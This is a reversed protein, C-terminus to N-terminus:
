KGVQTKKELNEKTIIEKILENDDKPLLSARIKEEIILSIDLNETLFKKVNDRGQGMKQDGYSYWSGAKQILGYKIGADMLSGEKSIGRGYEVDLEAERFPPALKNKVIKVRV